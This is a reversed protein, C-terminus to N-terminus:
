PESRIEYDIHSLTGDFVRLLERVGARLVQREPSALMLDLDERRDFETIVQCAIAPPDDERTVPWLATAHRVGPLTALRPVLEGNIADAFRQEAGPAASGVWFASRVWRGSPSPPSCSSASM